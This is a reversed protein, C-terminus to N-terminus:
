VCEVTCTLSTGANAICDNLNITSTNYGGALNECLAQMVAYDSGYDGEWSACSYSFGLSLTSDTSPLTMTSLQSLTANSGTVYFPNSALISILAIVKSLMSHCPLIPEASDWPVM